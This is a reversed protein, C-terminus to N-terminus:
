LELTGPFKGKKITITVGLSIHIEMFVAGDGSDISGLFSGLRNSPNRRGQSWDFLGGLRMCIDEGEFYM